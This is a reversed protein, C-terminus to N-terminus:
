RGRPAGRPIVPRVPLAPPKYAPETRPTVVIVKPDSPLASAADAIQAGLHDAGSLGGAAALAQAPIVKTGAALETRSHSALSGALDSVDGAHPVGASGAYNMAAKTLEGRAALSTQAARDAAGLLEGGGKAELASATLNGLAKAIRGHEFDNVDVANALLQEGQRQADAQATIPDEHDVIERYAPNTGLLANILQEPHALASV